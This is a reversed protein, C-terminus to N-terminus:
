KEIFDIKITWLAVSGTTIHLCEASADGTYMYCTTDSGTEPDPFTLNGYTQSKITGVIARASADNVAAWTCSAKKKKAVIKKEMTGDLSRGTDESSIENVEVTLSSPFPLNVNNWQFKRAM